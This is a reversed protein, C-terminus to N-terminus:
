QRIFNRAHSDRPSANATSADCANSEDEISVYRADGSKTESRRSRSYEHFEAVDGNDRELGRLNRSTPYTTEMSVRVVSLYLDFSLEVLVFAIFFHVM